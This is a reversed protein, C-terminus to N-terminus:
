APRSSETEYELRVFSSKVHETELTFLGCFALSARLDADAALIVVCCSQLIKQYVGEFADGHIGMARRQKTHTVSRHIFENDFREEGSKSIYIEIRDPDGGDNFFGCLNAVACTLQVQASNGGLTKRGLLEVSGAFENRFGAEIAQDCLSLGIANGIRM